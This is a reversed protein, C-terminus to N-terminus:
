RRGPRGKEPVPDERDPPVTLTITEELWEVLNEAVHHVFTCGPEFQAQPRDTRVWVTCMGLAAAPELNKAMDELMAARRPDVAHRVLFRDYAPRQPKPVFEAAAVDFVDDFHHSIGLRHMVNVAHRETANTFVIKRGPLRTLAADLAPDPRVIELDLEHVYDLFAQPAVGHMEMLGRLTTGYSRFYRDRHANAAEHDLGLLEGIYAVMRREMQPFLDSVSPHYLTNDLDFIWTEVERLRGTRDPIEFAAGM